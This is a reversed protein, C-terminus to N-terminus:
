VGCLRTHNSVLGLGPILAQFSEQNLLTKSHTGYIFSQEKELLASVDMQNLYVHNIYDETAKRM